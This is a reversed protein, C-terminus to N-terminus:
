FLAAYQYYTEFHLVGQDRYRGEMMTFGTSGAHNFYTKVKGPAQTTGVDLHGATTTDEYMYVIDNGVHM